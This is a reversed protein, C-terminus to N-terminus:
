DQNKQLDEKLASISNIQENLKVVDNNIKMVLGAVFAVVAMLTTRYFTEWNTKQQSTM